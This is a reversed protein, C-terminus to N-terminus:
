WHRHDGFRQKMRFRSLSCYIEITLQKGSVYGRLLCRSKLESCVSSEIGQVLRLDAVERM